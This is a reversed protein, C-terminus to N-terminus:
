QSFFDYCNKNFFFNVEGIETIVGSEVVPIAFTTSFTHQITELGLKHQYGIGISPILYIGIPSGSNFGPIAMNDRTYEASVSFNESSAITGVGLGVVGLLQDNKKSVWEMKIASETNLTVSAGKLSFSDIDPTDYITPRPIYVQGEVSIRPRFKDSKPNSQLRLGIKYQQDIYNDNNKAQYVFSSQARSAGGWYLCFFLILIFLNSQKM